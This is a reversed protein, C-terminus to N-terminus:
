LVLLLAAGDPTGWGTVADFGVQAQYGVGPKPRSANQGITIDRCAVTGRPKGNPGNQYLLPTLFRQQKDAPLSSNIRAILSAWLPASASTGGNPSVQGLFILDYLPPGAVASVDPTVRGDISGKNLPKIVVDQWQPRNFFISVGGGTAGGGKSSRYGPSEWWTQETQNAATGTLMTGGVSLVFPSSSPFDVHTRGDTMGDGSGDDGSSVCVTIGLMSAAQLRNNIETRAADSWDPADEALGWSVSVTVPKAPDGGIVKNLLDVWGKQSFPAFYVFIEAKPCLSAVIQVDMNVEGSADLENGQQPQHMRKIQDLTFPTQGLSVVTVSPVPLGNKACSAELDDAFYGGDFEAIVIQQGAGDGPPFNYRKELEAVTLPAMTASAPAASTKTKRLASRKNPRRQVVQRKAKRRAVRREDLGFVGTVIGDLEAPIKLKGERGRFEGQEKSQYIGLKPHFAAEMQTVTGSVRISRSPLSVEDIKLGYSELIRAVKDADERQAGYKSAFEERSLRATPASAPDPLDPGRLSITVEVKSQPDADRLRKADSKAPRTSGRLAVHQRSMAMRGRPRQDFWTSYYNSAKLGLILCPLIHQEM